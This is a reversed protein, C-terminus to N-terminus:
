RLYELIAASVFNIARGILKLRRHSDHTASGSYILMVAKEELFPAAVKGGLRGQAEQEQCFNGHDYLEEDHHVGEVQTQCPVYSKPM